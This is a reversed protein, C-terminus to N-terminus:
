HPEKHEATQMKNMKYLDCNLGDKVVMFVSLIAIKLHHYHHKAKKVHDEMHVIVILKQEGLLKAFSNKAVM